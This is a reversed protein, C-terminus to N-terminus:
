TSNPSRATGGGNRPEARARRRRSAAACRWRRGQGARRQRLHPRARLRLAQHLRDGRQDGGPVARRPSAATRLRRHAARRARDPRGRGGHPRPLGGAGADLQGRTRLVGRVLDEFYELDAIEHAQEHAFKRSSRRRRQGRSLQWAYIAQLARRRSRSRSRISATSPRRQTRQPEHWNSGCTRWRSRWWRRRRARTAMAAAPARPPMRSHAGGGARRQAGARRYDLAVRMLGDACGDAVQEYHRTDGRVVCGLAVIAAHRRRRGPARPRPLEWAGPVRIVDVAAETWATPSSPERARRGGACRHHAPELPQRHDRLARRRPRAPRRRLSAYPM